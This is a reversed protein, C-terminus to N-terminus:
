IAVERQLEANAARRDPKHGKKEGGNSPIYSGSAYTCLSVRAQERQGCLREEAAKCVSSDWIGTPNLAATM